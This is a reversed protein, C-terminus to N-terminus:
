VFLLVSNLLLLCDDKKGVCCIDVLEKDKFILFISNSNKRLMLIKRKLRHRFVCEINSSFESLINNSKIADTQTFALNDLWNLLLILRPLSNIRNQLSIFDDKYEETSSFPSLIKFKSKIEIKRLKM